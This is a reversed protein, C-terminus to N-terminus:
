QAAQQALQEHMAALAKTKNGAEKLREALNRCHGEGFAMPQKSALMPPNRHYADAMEEHQKAEALLRETESRYYAALREHDVKTKAGAILTKLEKKSLHKESKASGIQSAVVALAILIVAVKLLSKMYNEMVSNSSEFYEGLRALPPAPSRGAGPCRGDRILLM